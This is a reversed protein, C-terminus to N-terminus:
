CVERIIIWSSARSRRSNSSPLQTRCCMYGCLILASFQKNTLFINKIATKEFSEMGFVLNTITYFVNIKFDM